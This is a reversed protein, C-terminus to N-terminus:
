ALRFLILVRCFPRMWTSKSVIRTQPIWIQPLAELCPPASKSQAETTYLSHTLYNRSWEVIDLPIGDSSRTRGM